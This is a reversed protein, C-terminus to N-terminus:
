IALRAAAPDIRRKMPTKPNGLLCKAHVVPLPPFAFDCHPKGSANSAAILDRFIHPCPVAVFAIM